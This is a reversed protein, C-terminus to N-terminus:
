ILLSIKVFFSATPEERMQGTRAVHRSEGSGDEDDQDEDESPAWLLGAVLDAINNRIADSMYQYRKAMSASSWGMVAM